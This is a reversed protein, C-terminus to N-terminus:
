YARSEPDLVEVTGEIRGGSDIQLQAYRITGSVRGNSKITLKRRVTLEGEVLGDIEADEVEAKGKFAGSKLIEIAKADTLDCEVKGEVVLRECSSIAGTLQIDRGVVLRKGDATSGSGSPGPPRPSGPIDVVRRPIEPNLAPQRPPTPAHSGKRSFPKLPPANFDDGGAREGPEAPTDAGTTEAGTTGAVQPTGTTDAGPKDTQTEEDKRRFM